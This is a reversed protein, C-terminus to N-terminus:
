AFQPVLQFGNTEIQEAKLTTFFGQQWLAHIADEVAELTVEPLVILGSMAFYPRGLQAEEELDQQLRIPDSFYVPYRRGETSEVYISLWGKYPLEFCAQEDFGEPLIIRLGGSQKQM